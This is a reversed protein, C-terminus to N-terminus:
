KKGAKSMRYFEQWIVPSLLLQLILGIQQLPVFRISFSSKIYFAYDMYHPILETQKVGHQTLWVSIPFLLAYIKGTEAPDNLGFGLKFFVFSINISKIFDMLFRLIRRKFGKSPLMFKFKKGTVRGLRRKPKKRRRTKEKELKELKKEPSKIEFKLLGYFWIVHTRVRKSATTDINVDFQVPSALVIVVLLIISILLILLFLM